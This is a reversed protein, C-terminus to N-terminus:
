DWDVGAFYGYDNLGFVGIVALGERGLAKPSKRDMGADLSYREAGIQASM